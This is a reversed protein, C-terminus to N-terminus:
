DIKFFGNNSLPIRPFALPSSLLLSQQLREIDCTDKSAFYVFNNSSSLLTASHFIRFNIVPTNDVVRVTSYQILTFSLDDPTSPNWM